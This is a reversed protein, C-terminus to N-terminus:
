VFCYHPLIHRSYNLLVEFFQIHLRSGFLQVVFDAFVNTSDTLWIFLQAMKEASVVELNVNLALMLFDIDICLGNVIGQSNPWPVM